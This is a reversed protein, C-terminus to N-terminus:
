SLTGFNGSSDKYRTVVQGNVLANFTLIAGEPVVASSFDADEFIKKVDM